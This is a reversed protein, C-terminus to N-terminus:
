NEPQADQAPSSEPAPTTNQETDAATGLLKLAELNERMVSFYNAGGDIQEQTLSGLPHLIGVKVGTERAIADAGKTSELSAAYIVPLQNTRIFEIIKVMQAPSPDSFASYGELGVQELGYDQCLYGFARHAVVLKRSALSQTVAQFEADLEQCQTLAKELNARFYEANEPEIEALFGTLDTLIREMNRVSLWIHPDPGVHGHSCETHADHVQDHPREAHADHAHGHSCETHADHAQDHPRETHSDHAQDHPREAHADHAHDHSCEHTGGLQVSRAAEFVPIKRKQLQPLIKETWTELGAGNFLFADARSMEMVKRPSPEWSHVDTGPPMVCQIEMKDGAIMQALDALLHFSVCVQKKGTNEKASSCGTLFFPVFLLPLALCIWHSFSFHKMKKGGPFSMLAM